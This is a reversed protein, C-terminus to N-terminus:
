SIVLFVLPSIEIIWINCFFECFQLATDELGDGATFATDELGDGTSPVHKLKITKNCRYGLKELMMKAVTNINKSEFQCFMFTFGTLTIMQVEKQISNRGKDDM